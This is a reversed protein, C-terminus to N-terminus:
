SRYGNEFDRKQVDIGLVYNAPVPLPMQGIWSNAFRNAGSAPTQAEGSLARSIFKLSNLRECSREFGYGLNLVYLALVFMWVGQLLERPAGASGNRCQHGASVRWMLWLAPWLGFLIIWTGKTFLALGLVIGALGAGAFNPRRLWHWFVYAAALGLSTAGTDPTIMQAQGLITPSFCWLVCALRGAAAGYLDRGWLNCMGAGLLSFPICMWRAVTFLWLSRVGNKEIFRRGCPFESRSTPLERYKSWDTEPQSLVVPIAAVLRVLPPNVRYLDFRGFQRHSVGAAMHGVEDVSPSHDAAGWALLVIHCLLATHIMWGTRTILVTPVVFRTPPM